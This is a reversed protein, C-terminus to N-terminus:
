LIAASFEAMTLGSRFHIFPLDRSVVNSASLIVQTGSVSFPKTKVEVNDAWKVTNNVVLWIYRDKM